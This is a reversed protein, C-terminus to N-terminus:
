NKKPTPTFNLNRDKVHRILINSIYKKFPQGQGEALRHLAKNLSATITVEIKM